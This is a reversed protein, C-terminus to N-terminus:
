LTYAPPWALDSEVLALFGHTLELEPHNDDDEVTSVVEEAVM